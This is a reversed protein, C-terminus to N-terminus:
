GHLARSFPRQAHPYSAVSASVESLLGGGCGVDLIDLGQLIPDMEEDDEHFQNERAVELTKERIFRM